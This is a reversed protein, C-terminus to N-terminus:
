KGRGAAASFAAGVSDRDTVDAVAPVAGLSEAAINLRAENRGLITVAAGKDILIRATAAGIGSGGGTVLAHKGDYWSM